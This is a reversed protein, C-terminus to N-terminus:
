EPARRLARVPFGPDGRSIGPRAGTHSGPIFHRSGEQRSAPTAKYAAGMILAEVM